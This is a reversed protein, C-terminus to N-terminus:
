IRVHTHHRGQPQPRRRHFTHSSTSTTVGGNGLGDARDASVDAIAHVPLEGEDLDAM